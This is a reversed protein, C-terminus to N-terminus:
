LWEVSAIAEYVSGYVVVKEARGIWCLSSFEDVGHFCDVFKVIRFKLAIKWFEAVFLKLVGAVNELHIRFFHSSIVFDVRVRSYSVSEFKPIRTEFQFWVFENM